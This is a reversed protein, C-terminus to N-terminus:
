QAEKNAFYAAKEISLTIDLQEVFVEPPTKLAVPAFNLICKIGAKIIQDAVIQASDAPVTILAVKIDEKLIFDNMKSIHLIRTGSYIRETKQPDSDFAAVIELNPKRKIFYSLIARGLNGVGVLIIKTKIGSKLHDSLVRYFEEVPYGKQPTGVIKFVMLDQRVQAPSVGVLDALEHSFVYSKGEELRKKVFECYRILREVSRSKSKRM